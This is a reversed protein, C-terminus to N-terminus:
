SRKKKKKVLVKDIRNGDMDVIEFTYEGLRISEGPAPIRGMRDMIFGALTNYGGGGAIDRKFHERFDDVSIMGDVLFSGDKRRTIKRDEERHLDPVDGVIEEIVDHLTVLGTVGGYEDIVFAMHSGSAKFLELAKLPSVSEPAYVPKEIYRTLSKFEGRIIKRLLNRTKVTGVINDLGNRCVPLYPYDGYEIIRERIRKLPETLEIYRIDPRPSMISAIRNEHLDFVSEVMETQQKKFLGFAEAEHMLVLIEDETVPPESNKLGRMGTVRMVLNTVATLFRVIPLFLISLAKMPYVVLSAIREPNLLAIRKPILEGFLITVLTISIVVIGSSLVQSYDAVAPVGAFYAMLTEAVTEEGYAGALIGILTIGIQITSLFATPAESTKLVARYAARGEEAKAKLRPKRSAVVAMESLSFFGNLLIMLALVTLAVVVPIM